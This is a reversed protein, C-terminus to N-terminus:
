ARRLLVFSGTGTRCRSRIGGGRAIRRIASRRSRSMRSWRWFSTSRTGNRSREPRAATGTGSSWSTRQEIKADRIFQELTRPKADTCATMLLLVALPLFFSLKKMRVGGKPRVAWLVRCAVLFNCDSM